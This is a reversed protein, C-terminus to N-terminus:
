EADANWAARYFNLEYLLSAYHQILRSPTVIMVNALCVNDVM